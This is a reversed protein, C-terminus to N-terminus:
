TYLMFFIEPYNKGGSDEKQTMEVVLNLYFTYLAHRDKLWPRTTAYMYQVHFAIISQVTQSIIFYSYSKKLVLNHGVSKPFVHCM